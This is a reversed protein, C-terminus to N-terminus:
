RSSRTFAADRYAVLGTARLLAAQSRLFAPDNVYLALEEDDYAAPNRLAVLAAHEAGILQMAEFAGAVNASVFLVAALVLLTRRVPVITMSVSTAALGILGIWALSSPTTYRFAMAADAGNGGRGIVELIAATLTFAVLAVWPAANRRDGAILLFAFAALFVAGLVECLVLGGAIGLPAGLYALVFRVGDFLPAPANVIWGNEFPPRQYNWLFAASALVAATLWVLAGRYRRQALLVIAGAVWLAFGFILSFSAVLAALIAPAIRWARLELADLLAVASLLGANVLFWSIQFGWMWNESQTLAYLLASALLFPRAAGTGLRRVFLRWLAFQALATLAVGALAEIRINWGDIASLGLVIATPVFSRHAGQQSWLDAVHLTGAHFALMLPSWIWEDYMPVNTVNTAVFIAMAVPLM